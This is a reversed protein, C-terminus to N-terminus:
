AKVRSTLEEELKKLARRRRQRLSEQTVGLKLCLADREEPDPRMQSGDLPQIIASWRLIEADAPDMEELIESVMLARKSPTPEEECLIGWINELYTLNTAEIELVSFTDCMLNKLIVAAWATFQKRQSAPDSGAPDFSHANDWIKHILQNYLEEPEFHLTGRSSTSRVSDHVLSWLLKQFNKLLEMFAAEADAREVPNSSDKLIAIKEMLDRVTDPPPSPMINPDM